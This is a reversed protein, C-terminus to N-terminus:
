GVIFYSMYAICPKRLRVKLVGIPLPAAVVRLRFIEIPADHDPRCRFNTGITYAVPLLACVTVDSPIGFLEAAEKETKESMNLGTTLTSGLGRARLALQFNWVAPYIMAGFILGLGASSPRGELCPIVHVPVEHLHDVLYQASAFVRATQQAIGSGELLKSSFATGVVQRYLNAVDARKRADDVIIWRWTQRNGGTPAQQSVRVCELIIERPVPRTLDLRKRVARTTTLLEDALAVEIAM